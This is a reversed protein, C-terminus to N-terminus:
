HGRAPHLRVRGEERRAESRSRRGARTRCDTEASGGAQRDQGAHGHHGQVPGRARRPTPSPPPPPPPPPPAPPPPPPPRPPPPPPDPAAPAPPPDPAPPPPPPAPAATDAPAPTAGTDGPEDNLLIAHPKLM